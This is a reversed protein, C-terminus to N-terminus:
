AHVHLRSLRFAVLERALPALAQVLTRTTVFTRAMWGGSVHGRGEVNDALRGSVSLSYSRMCSRAAAHQVRRNLWAGIQATAGLIGGRTSGGAAPRTHPGRAEHSGTKAFRPASFVRSLSAPWRGSCYPSHGWAHGHGASMEASSPQLM